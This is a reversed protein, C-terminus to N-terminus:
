PSVRPGNRQGRGGLSEQRVLMDARFGIVGDAPLDGRGIRIRDEKGFGESDDGDLAFVPEEAVPIM